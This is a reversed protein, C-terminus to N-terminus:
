QDCDPPVIGDFNRARSKGYGNGIAQNRRIQMQVPTDLTKRAIVIVENSGTLGSAKVEIRYSGPPVATFSYAGRDDTVTRESLSPGMLDVTAGAIVSRKGDADLIFATGQLDGSKGDACVSQAATIFFLWCFPNTLAAILVMLRTTSVPQNM